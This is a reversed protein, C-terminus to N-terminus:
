RVKSGAAVSQAGVRVALFHGGAETGPVVDDAKGCRALVVGVLAVQVWSVRWKVSLVWCSSLALSM